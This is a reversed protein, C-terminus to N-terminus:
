CGLAVQLINKASLDDKVGSQGTLESQDVGAANSPAVETESSQCYSFSFLIILAYISNRITVKM